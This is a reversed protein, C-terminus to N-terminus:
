ASDIRIRCVVPIINLRPISNTDHANRTVSFRNQSSPSLIKQLGHSLQYQKALEAFDIVSSRKRENLFAKLTLSFSSYIDGKHM